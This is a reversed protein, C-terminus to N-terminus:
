KIRKFILSLHIPSTGASFRIRNRETDLIEVRIDRLEEQKVTKHLINRPENTVYDNDNSIFPVVDLVNLANNGVFNNSIFNCHVMINHVGTLLDINVSSMIANHFQGYISRVNLITCRDLYNQDPEVNIDIPRKLLITTTKYGFCFAVVTKSTFVFGLPFYCRNASPQKFRCTKLKFYFKNLIEDYSVDLIDRISLM